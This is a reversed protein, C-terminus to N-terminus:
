SFTDDYSMIGLWVLYELAKFNGQNRRLCLHSVPGHIYNQYIFHDMENQPRRSCQSFHHEIFRLDTRKVTHLYHMEKLM